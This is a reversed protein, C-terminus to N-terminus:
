NFQLHLEVFQADPLILHVKLTGFIACHCGARDACHVYKTASPLGLKRIKLNPWVDLHCCMLMFASSGISQEDKDKLLM